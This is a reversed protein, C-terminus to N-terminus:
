LILDDNNKNHTVLPLMHLHKSIGHGRFYKDVYFGEKNVIEEIKCGIESIKIGPKCINIAEYVSNECIKIMKDLNPDIEDKYVM